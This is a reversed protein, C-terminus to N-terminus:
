NLKQSEVSPKSAAGDSASAASQAKSGSQTSADSQGASEGKSEDASQSGSPNQSASPQGSSGGSPTSESIPAESPAPFLEIIKEKANQINEDPIITKNINLVYWERVVRYANGGSIRLFLVTLLVVACVTIQIITLLKTSVRKEHTEYEGGYEEDEDNEYENEDYYDKMRIGM